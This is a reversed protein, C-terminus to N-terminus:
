TQKLLRPRGKVIRSSRTSPGDMTRIARLAKKTAREGEAVFSDLSIFDAWGYQEVRPRLVVDADRLNYETLQMRAIAGARLVVDIANAVPKSGRVDRTVSAAIVPLKSLRRAADVPVMSTPAGDVLTRGDLRVPAVVGPIASSAAVARLMSGKHCIVEEGTLLDCSVAAFPIRCREISIDDLL